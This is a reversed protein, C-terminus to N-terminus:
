DTPQEHDTNQNLFNKEVTRAADLTQELNTKKDISNNKKPEYVGPYEGAISYEMMKIATDEPYQSLIKLNMQLSSSSKKRWKKQKSLVDWITLFKKSEFPFILPEKEKIDKLKSEKLKSHTNVAGQLTSKQPKRSSKGDFLLRLSPLLLRLSNKNICENGRKRYADQINEIFKENFLINNEWFEQDFEGFSVLDNIINKLMDESVMMQASLYKIQIENSLDLFHFEAKSLEELLM